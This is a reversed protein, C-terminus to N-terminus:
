TKERSRVQEVVHTVVPLVECTIISHMAATFAWAARELDEAARFHESRVMLVLWPEYCDSRLLFLWGANKGWNYLKDHM